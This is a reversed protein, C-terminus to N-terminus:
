YNYKDNLKKKLKNKYNKSNDKVNSGYMGFVSKGLEYPSLDNFQKSIYEELAKKIIESKSENERIALETLKCELTSDLRVRTM